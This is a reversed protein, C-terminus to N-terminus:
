IFGLKKKTITNGVFAQNGARRSDKTDGVKKLRISKSILAFFPM